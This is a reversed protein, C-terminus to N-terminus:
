RIRLKLYHYYEHILTNVIMVAINLTITNTNFDMIGVTEKDIFGVEVECERDDLFRIIQNMAVEWLYVPPIATM